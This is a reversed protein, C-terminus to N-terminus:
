GLRRVGSGYKGTGEAVERGDAEPRVDGRCNMEGEQVM